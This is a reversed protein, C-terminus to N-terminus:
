PKAFRSDDIEANTKVETIKIIMEGVPTKQTWQFPTKVGDVARYDTYLTEVPIKGQPGEDVAVARLLLFTADDYYRTVTTGDTSTLRIVYADQEGVKERGTLEAKIFLERWKLESNFVAQRRIKELEDGELTRLGQYPDQSWGAKGDFGQKIMGVKDITTVTLMKDPAKGCVELAGLVNRGLIELTAKLCYSASKEIAKRGGIAEINKELIEEATIQPPKAKVTSGATQAMANVALTASILALLIQSTTKM